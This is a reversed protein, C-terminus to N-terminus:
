SVRQKSQGKKRGEEYLNDGDCNIVEQVHYYVREIWAQIREQSLEKWCKIWAERLVKESTIPGRKTTERKMWFWTPEIANLDPSNSPWFMKQIEWLDYVEQQYRSAHAPANDEQVITGPREKLCEKAFPLLKAILIKKQYNYWNIGGRGEKVVYAGTEETHKFQARPGSQNRTIHIRTMAYELEWKSKDLEFRADNLRELDAQMAKREAVTEKEWIHYPGKHDWSFCSWWMFEKRGKWRRVVVHPHYTEEKKRWVRRKGRVGGLVVSTEDSFIVNKWDEITWDKRELCWALRARKAAETLGPKVTRKFVGYGNETLVRYVTSASVAQRGPTSTVEAAIRACSWGRTTSNKTMTQIIFLATATSTKIRGSRPTDDIHEVEVVTGPIWGRSVAKSRLKYCGSKSVGTKALIADFDPPKGEDFKTLATIRAGVSNGRGKPHEAPQSPEAPLLLPLQPPPNTEHDSPCVLDPGNGNDSDDEWIDFEPDSLDTADDLNDFLSM